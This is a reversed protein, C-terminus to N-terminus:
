YGNAVGERSYFAGEDFFGGSNPMVELHRMVGKSTDVFVAGMNHEYAAVTGAKRLIYNRKTVMGTSTLIKPACNMLRAIVKLGIKSAPIIAHVGAPTIGEFGNVPNKSTVIVNADAIFHFGGLDITGETLYPKVAEDYWLDDGGDIDPQQFGSKNYTTRAVLLKAGVADCYTIM